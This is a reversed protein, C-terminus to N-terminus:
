RRRRGGDPRPTRPPRGAAALTRNVNEEEIDATDEFWRGVSDGIDEGAQAADEALARFAAALEGGDAM